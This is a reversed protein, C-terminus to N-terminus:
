LYVLFSIRSVTLKNYFTSIEIGYLDVHISSPILVFLSSFVGIRTRETSGICMLSAIGHSVYKAIDDVIGISLICRAHEMSSRLVFVV